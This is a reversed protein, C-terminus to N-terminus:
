GTQARQLTRRGGLHQEPNEPPEEQDERGKQQGNESLSPFSM